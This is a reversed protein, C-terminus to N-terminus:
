DMGYKGYNLLGGKKASTTVWHPSLGNEGLAGRLLPTHRAHFGLSRQGVSRMFEAGFYLFPILQCDLRTTYTNILGDPTELQSIQLLNHQGLETLIEEALEQGIQLDKALLAATFSYQQRTHFYALTRLRYPKVLLRFLRIYEEENKMLAAYGDEPEPMILTYQFDEAVSARMIGGDSIYSVLTPVSSLHKQQKRDVHEHLNAIQYLTDGQEDYAGISSKFLDWALENSRSFRQEEPTRNLEERLMNSIDAPKASSFNFLEDISCGLASALKPLLTVDPAGGREWHSVAQTSVSLLKGLREQTLGAAKRYRIINQSLPNSNM